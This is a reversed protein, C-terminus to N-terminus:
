LHQLETGEPPPAPSQEPTRPTSTGEPRGRAAPVSTGPVAPAPCPTGSNWLSSAPTHTGGMQVRSLVRKRGAARAGAHCHSLARAAEDGQSRTLVTVGRGRTVRVARELGLMNADRVSKHPCMRHRAGEKQQGQCREKPASPAFVLFM